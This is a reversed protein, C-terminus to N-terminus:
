YQLKNEIYFLRNHKTIFIGRVNKIKTIAGIYPHNQLLNIRAIVKRKFDDAVKENWEVELYDIVEKLRSIFRKNVVIKYAM